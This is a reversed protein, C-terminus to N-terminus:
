SPRILAEIIDCIPDLDSPEIQAAFAAHRSEWDLNKVHDVLVVGDVGCGDPLAHEFAYGKRKSTIPCVVCRGTKQNYFRPSLVLGPRRGAQEFGAQPSFDLWVIDGREPIFAKSTVM